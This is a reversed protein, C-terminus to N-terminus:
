IPMCFLDHISPSGILEMWRGNEQNLQLPPSFNPPQRRMAGCSPMEPLKSFTYIPSAPENYLLSISYM